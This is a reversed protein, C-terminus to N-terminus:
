YSQLIFPQMVHSWCTYRLCYIMDHMCVWLPVLTIATSASHRIWISEADWQQDQSTWPSLWLSFQDRQEETQGLQIVGTWGLAACYIDLRIHLLNCHHLYHLLVKVWVGTPCITLPHKNDSKTTYLFVSHVPFTTLVTFNKVICKESSSHNM